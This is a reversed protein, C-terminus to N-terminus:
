ITEQFMKGSVPEHRHAHARRIRDIQDVQTYNQVEGQEMECLPVLYCAKASTWSFDNSYDLLSILYDLM